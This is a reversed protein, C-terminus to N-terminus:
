RHWADPRGLLSFGRWTSAASYPSRPTTYNPQLPPQPRYQSRLAPYFGYLTTPVVKASYRYPHQGSAPPLTPRRVNTRSAPPRGTTQMGSAYLVGGTPGFGEHALAVAVAQVALGVGITAALGYAPAKRRRDFVLPRKQVSDASARDVIM